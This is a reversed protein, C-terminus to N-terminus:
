EGEFIDTFTDIIVLDVNTTSLHKELKKHIEDTDFIYLLNDLKSEDVTEKFNTVQKKLSISISNPDDETSIYIVKNTKSNIEYGLFTKENFIISLALQRLFTSKGTDSSGVLSVIGTKPFIPDILTPINNYNNKFLKLGSYPLSN